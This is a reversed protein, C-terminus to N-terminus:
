LSWRQAVRSSRLDRKEFNLSEKSVFVHDYYLPPRQICTTNLAPKVTHNSTHCDGAVGDDMVSLNFRLDVDLTNSQLSIIACFSDPPDGEAVTATARVLTVEVDDM